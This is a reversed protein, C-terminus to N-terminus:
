ADLEVNWYLYDRWSDPANRFNITFTIAGLGSPARPQRILHMGAQEPTRGGKRHNCKLCCTVINDWTKEGDLAAPVVHDFTLEESSYHKGCYQCTFEDRTYINIRSFKVQNLNHKIRVYRLLRVVSPLKIAFSISRIERDYEALVEVKGSFLLSIAKKWSVIHLPEYSANLLLTREMSIM